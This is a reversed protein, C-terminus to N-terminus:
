EMWKRPPVLFIGVNFYGSNELANSIRPSGTNVFGNSDYLNFNINRRLGGSATFWVFDYIEREYSVTLYFDSKELFLKSESYPEFNLFYSDGELQAVLSLVNKDKFFYKLRANVPLITELSFHKNFKKSYALVPYIAQRGFNYAYSLGIGWSKSLSARKGWLFTFSTRIHETLTSRSFDGSIRLNAYSVLYNQGVLPKIMYLKTGLSRLPKDELNQYFENEVTEFDKFRFEKVQYNAGLFLSLKPKRLIPAKLKVEFRRDRDILDRAFVNSDKFQTEINYNLVRRYNIEIGKPRPLGQLQPICIGSDDCLGMESLSDVKILDQGQVSQCFMAVVVSGRALAKIM